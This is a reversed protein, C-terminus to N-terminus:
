AVREFYRLNGWGSAKLTLHDQFIIGDGEVAHLIGREIALWIGIHVAQSARSMLVLSGDEGPKFTVGHQIVQRWNKREDNGKFEHALWLLSADSPVEIDPLGDGFVERRVHCVCSWCDFENPGKANLRYPKGILDHIIKTRDDGKLISM